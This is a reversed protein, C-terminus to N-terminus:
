EYQVPKPSKLELPGNACFALSQNPANADVSADYIILQTAVWKQLSDSPKSLFRLLKILTINSTVYCCQRQRETYVPGLPCSSMLIEYSLVM